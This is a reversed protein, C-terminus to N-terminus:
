KCDTAQSTTSIQDPLDAAKFDSALYKRAEANYDAVVSICYNQTGTLTQQATKDAPDADVAQQALEIKRDAGEIEAYLDEFKAQAKTWNEASYKTIHASGQGRFPATGVRIGFILAAFLMAGLIAAIIVLITKLPTWPKRPNM